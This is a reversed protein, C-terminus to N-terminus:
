REYMCLGDVDLFFIHRGEVRIFQRTSLDHLIRSFHEPTLNLAAAVQAKSQTLTIREGNKLPIDELLYYIVRQTGSLLNATLVDGLLGYLRESLQAIFQIMLGPQQALCTFFADHTIKLARVQTLAVADVRYPKAMLMYSDGVSDGAQLQRIKKQNNASPSLQLQVQGEDLLYFCDSDQGRKFLGQGAAFQVTESVALLATLQSMGWGYFLPQKALRKPTLTVTKSM